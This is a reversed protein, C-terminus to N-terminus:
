VIIKFKNQSFFILNKNFSPLSFSYYTEIKWVKGTSYSHPYPHTMACRLSLSSNPVYSNRRSNLYVMFLQLFQETCSPVQQEQLHGSNPVCYVCTLECHDTAVTLHDSASKRTKLPVLWKHLKSMCAALVNM